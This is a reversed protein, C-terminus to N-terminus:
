LIQIFFPEHISRTFKIEPNQELISKMKHLLISLYEFTKNNIGKGLFENLFLQKRIQIIVVAMADFVEETKENMNIKSMWFCLINMVAIKCSLFGEQIINVGCSKAQDIIAKHAGFYSTVKQGAENLKEKVTTELIMNTKFSTKSQEEIWRLTNEYELVLKGKMKYVQELENEIKSPWVIDICHNESESNTLTSVHELEDNTMKLLEQFNLNSVIKQIIPTQISEDDDAKMELEYYFKEHIFYDLPEIKLQGGFTTTRLRGNENKKMIKGYGEFQLSCLDKKYIQYNKKFDTMNLGKCVVVFSAKKIPATRAMSFSYNYRNDKGFLYSKVKDWIKDGVKTKVTQILEYVSEILDGGEFNKEDMLTMKYIVYVLYKITKSFKLATIKIDDIEKSERIRRDLDIVVQSTNIERNEENLNTDKTDKTEKKIAAKTPPLEFKSFLSSISNIDIKKIDFQCQGEFFGDLTKLDLISMDVKSEPESQPGSTESEKDQISQNQPLPKPLQITPKRSQPPPPPPPAPIGLSQSGLEQVINDKQVQNSSLLTKLNNKKAKEHLINMVITMKKGNQRHDYLHNHEPIWHQQLFPTTEAKMKETNSQAVEARVSSQSLTTQADTNLGSKQENEDNKQKALPQSNYDHTPVPPTSAEEEISHSGDLPLAAVEARANDDPVDPPVVEEKYNEKRSVADQAPLESQAKSDYTGQDPDMAKIIKKSEQGKVIKPELKIEHTSVSKNKPDLLETFFDKSKQNLVAQEHALVPGLVPTLVVNAIAGAAAKAANALRSPTSTSSKHENESQQNVNTVSKLMKKDPSNTSESNLVRMRSKLQKNESQIQKFLTMMQELEKMQRIAKIAEQEIDDRRKFDAEIQSRIKMFNEAEKKYYSMKSQNDAIQRQLDQIIVVHVDRQETELHSGTGTQCVDTLVLFPNATM